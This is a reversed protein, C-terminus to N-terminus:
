ECVCVCVQGLGPSELIAKHFLGKSRNSTLHWGVSCTACVFVCLYVCTMGDNNGNCAHRNATEGFFSWIVHENTHYHRHRLCTSINRILLARVGCVRWEGDCVVGVGSVRWEGDCVCVVCVEHRRLIRRLDARQGPGINTVCTISTRMLIVAPALKM